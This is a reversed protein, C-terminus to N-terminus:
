KHNGRDSNDNYEKFANACATMSQMARNLIESYRKACNKWYEEYYKEPNHKKWWWMKIKYILKKM